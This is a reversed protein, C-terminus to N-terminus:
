KHCSINRYNLILFCTNYVQSEYVISAFQTPDMMSHNQLKLFLKSCEGSM